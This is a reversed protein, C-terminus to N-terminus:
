RLSRFPFNYLFMMKGTDVLERIEFGRQSEDIAHARKGLFLSMVGIDQESPTFGFHRNPGVLHVAQGFGIENEGRLNIPENSNM